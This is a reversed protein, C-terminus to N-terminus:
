RVGLFWGGSVKCQLDPHEVSAKHIGASKNGAKLKWWTGTGPSDVCSEQARVRADYLAVRHRMEADEAATAARVRCSCLPGPGFRKTWNAKDQLGERIVSQGHARALVQLVHHLYPQSSDTGGPVRCRGSDRDCPKCLLGSSSCADGRLSAVKCVMAEQQLGANERRIHPQIARSLVGGEVNERPPYPQM